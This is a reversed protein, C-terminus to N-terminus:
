PRHRHGVVWARRLRGDPLVFDLTARRLRQLRRLLQRRRHARGATGLAAIAEGNLFVGISRAYSVQWDDDTM